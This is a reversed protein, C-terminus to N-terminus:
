EEQVMKVSQSERCYLIKITLASSAGVTSKSFGFISSIEWSFSYFGISAAWTGGKTEPLFGM